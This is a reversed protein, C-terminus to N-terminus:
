LGAPDAREPDMGYESIAASVTEASVQGRSALASLSAVVVDRASVEYFRRLAERGDSRGFGDTGLVDLGGPVWRAVMGPLAKVYDTAAVTPADVKGLCRTVYPDRRSEGPHLRNWRDTDLAQRYLQKYSTVSWVDAEVDFRERLM